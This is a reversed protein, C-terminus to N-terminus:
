REGMASGRGTILVWPGYYPLTGTVAKRWRAYDLKQAHAKDQVDDWWFWLGKCPIDKM